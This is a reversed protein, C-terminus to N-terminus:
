GVYLFLVAVAIDPRKLMVAAHVGTKGDPRAATLDSGIEALAQITKVTIDQRSCVLNILKLTGPGDPNPMVM